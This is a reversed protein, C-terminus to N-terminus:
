QLAAKVLEYVEDVTGRGDVRRLRGAQEYHKIVPGTEAEYLEYKKQVSEPSDDQRGRGTLRELTTEMDLDILVVGKLERGFGALNQDLWEVDAMRRPTGDLIIPREVSVAAFAEGVVRHVEEAPMLRGDQLMAAVKPDKFLLKGSSLHVGNLDRALLEGQTSKGSGTPGMLLILEGM